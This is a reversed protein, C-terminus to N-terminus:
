KAGGILPLQGNLRPRPVCVSRLVSVHYRGPSHLEDEAYKIPIGNARSLKSAERGWTQRVASSRVGETIGQTKCWTEISMFDRDDLRDRLDEIDTVAQAVKKELDVLIQSHLLSLEAPTMPKAIYAGTRRISPLVQSTVLKKFDKAAPKRSQLILSYLGSESVYIREMGPQPSVGEIAHLPCKEDDDLRAYANSANAIGVSKCVDPGDFWPSGDLDYKITVRNGNFEFYTPQRSDGSYPVIQNSMSICRGQPVAVASVTAEKTVPITSYTVACQLTRSTITQNANAAGARAGVDSM